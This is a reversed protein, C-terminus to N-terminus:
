SMIEVFFDVQIHCEDCVTMWGARGALARWDQEPSAFYFWSLQGASTKCKPCSVADELYRSRADEVSHQSQLREDSTITNIVKWPYHEQEEVFFNIQIHCQDCTTLWGGRKPWEWESRSYIWSLQDPKTDCRPCSVADHLYANKADQMSHQNQLGKDNRFSDVEGWDFLDQQELFFSVQLHCRDCVTLWGALKPSKHIAPRFYFWELQAALTNCEPCPAARHLYECKADEASHESQLWKRNRDQNVHDWPYQEQLEM